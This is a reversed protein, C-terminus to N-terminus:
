ALAEAMAKTHAFLGPTGGSHLFVATAASGLDGSRALTALGALAKGTYVPDLVLAETRGALAVAKIAAPTPLGYGSGIEGDILTVDDEALRAALGLRAAAGAAAEVLWPRLRAAPQQVSFAIIRTPVELHKFGLALGAATLGSGCALGLVQPVVGIREFDRALEAAGAVWAAVGLPASAGTLQVIHPRGGSARVEDAIRDLEAPIRPDWPDMADTYSIRAGFIRDLLLNGEIAPPEDARLLLHCGLGAKAAAGALARCFNSQHGATSVLTDAGEGIAEALFVDLKRLKNGGLAYGSLDERKIWLRAIGLAAALRPAEDLPTPLHALSLRPLGTAEDAVVRM